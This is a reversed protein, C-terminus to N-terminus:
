KDLKCKPCIWKKRDGYGQIWGDNKLKNTITHGRKMKDVGIEVGCEACDVSYGVWMKGSDWWTEKYINGTAPIVKLNM